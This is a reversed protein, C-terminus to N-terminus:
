YEIVQGVLGCKDIQDGGQVILVRLNQLSGQVRERTILALLVLAPRTLLEEDRSRQFEQTVGVGIDAGARDVSEPFDHGAPGIDSLREGLDGFVVGIGTQATHGALAHWAPLAEVGTM